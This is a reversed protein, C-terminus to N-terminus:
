SIDPRLYAKKHKGYRRDRAEAERLARVESFLGIPPTDSPMKIIRPNNGYLKVFNERAELQLVKLKKLAITVRREWEASKLKEM